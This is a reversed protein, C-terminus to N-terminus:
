EDEGGLAARLAAHLERGYADLASDELRGDLRLAAERSLRVVVDGQDRAELAERGAEPGLAAGLREGAAWIEAMTGDGHLLAALDTRNVTVADPDARVYEVPKCECGPLFCREQEGPRDIPVHLGEDEPNSCMAIRDPMHDSM